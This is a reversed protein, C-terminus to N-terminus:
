AIASERYRTLSLAIGGVLTGCAMAIAVSALSWGTSFLLGALIPGLAAGARGIGIVLGTGGARLAAPYSQAIVAYLGATAGNAFFCAIAAIVSLGGLSVAGQGFVTVAVAGAFMAGVVVPRIGIKQSLLSVAISGIAGGVNGWVLVGGALAPPFGLDVVIKPIWKVLFYFTMMHFFYTATLMITVNAMGPAFLAAVSTKQQVPDAPPMEDLAKRGQLVLTRNIKELAGAPRKLLLFAMTEPVLWLVLPIFCLTIVAGFEFVSEWRGTAALLWSAASGGVIAGMPYGGAMIAVTLNRRRANSCEAVVANTAALMGGIGLGTFLRYASLIPVSTATSALGMGIGMIVLCALLMPRRGVKDALTGLVFAGVGMGFLEMSLVLGLAARDIGWDKAIGPAAFSISLVDFGDLANLATAIGVAIVQRYHMPERAILARPDEM